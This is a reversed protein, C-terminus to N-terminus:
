RIIPMGDRSQLSRHRNPQLCIQDYINVVFERTENQCPRTSFALMKSPCILLHHQKSTGYEMSWPAPLRSVRTRYLLISWVGGLAHFYKYIQPPTANINTALFTIYQAAATGSSYTTRSPSAPMGQHLPSSTIGPKVNGPYFALWIALCRNSSWGRKAAAFAVNTSCSSTGMNRKKSCNKRSSLKFSKKIHICCICSNSFELPTKIVYM